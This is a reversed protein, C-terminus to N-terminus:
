SEMVDYIIREKRWREENMVIYWSVLLAAPWAIALMMIRRGSDPTRWRGSYPISILVASCAAIPFYREGTLIAGAAMSVLIFLIQLATRGNKWDESM